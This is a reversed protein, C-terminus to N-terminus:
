RSITMLETQGERYSRVTFNRKLKADANFSLIEDVEEEEIDEENAQEHDHDHSCEEDEDDHMKDCGHDCARDLLTAVIDFFGFMSDSLIKIFAVNAYKPLVYNCAGSKVFYVRTVQDGEYFIYENPAAVRTKLIPCIWTIFRLDKDKLFDVQTYVEEYIHISLPTKLDHPLLSVFDSVSKMDQRNNNQIHKKISIYLDHPFDHKEFLKNLVVM